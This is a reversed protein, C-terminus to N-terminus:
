AGKYVTSIFQICRSQFTQQNCTTLQIQGVRM